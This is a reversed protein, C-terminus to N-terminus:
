AMTPRTLTKVCDTRHEDANCNSCLRKSFVTNNTEPCVVRISLSSDYYDDVNRTGGFALVTLSIKQQSGNTSTLKYYTSTVHNTHIDM